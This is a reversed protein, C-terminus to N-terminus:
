KTEGLEIARITTVNGDNDGFATLVNTGNPWHATMGPGCVNMAKDRAALPSEHASLHVRTPGNVGDDIHKEVLFIFM